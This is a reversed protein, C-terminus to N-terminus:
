GPVTTASQWGVESAPKIYSHPGTSSLDRIRKEIADVEKQDGLDRKFKLYLQLYVIRDLASIKRERDLLLLLRKFLTESESSRNQNHRTMALNALPNPDNPDLKIAREFAEAAGNWDHKARKAIGLDDYVQASNPNFQTAKQCDSLSADFDQKITRARCLDSYLLTNRPELALAKVYDAIGGDIDGRRNRLHGRNIYAGVHNPNLTIAESYDVIAPDLKGENMWLIGRNYYHDAYKPQLSIAKAYDALADNIKGINKYANARNGYPTDYNADLNIAKTFEDIARFMDSTTRYYYVGFNNFLSPNNPSLKLARNLDKLAAEREGTELYAMARNIYGRGDDPAKKIVHEYNAIALAHERLTSYAVGRNLYAELNDQELEIAKDLDNIANKALNKRMLASARNNYAVAYGPKLRISEAYDNIAADYEGKRYYSNGRNNYSEPINDKANISSTYDAIALDTDGNQQHAFARYFYASYKVAGLVSKQDLAETFLPIGDKYNQAELKILGLTILVSYALRTSLDEQVKFRDLDSAPSIFIDRDIPFSGKLPKLVEFYSTVLVKEETKGYWGWIVGSAKLQRGSELAVASGEQESIPRGLPVIEVEAHQKALQRLNGLLLETVRYSEADPGPFDAIVVIFKESPLSQYYIFALFLLPILIVGALAGRRTRIPYAPIKHPSGFIEGATRQKLLLYLTFSWILLTGTLFLGKHLKDWKSEVLLIFNVLYTLTSFLIGARKLWRFLVSDEGDANISQVM